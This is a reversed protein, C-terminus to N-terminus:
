IYVYKQIYIKDIHLIKIFVQLVSEREGVCVYVYVYM